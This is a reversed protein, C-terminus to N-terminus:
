RNSALKAAKNQGTIKRHKKDRSREITSCLQYWPIQLDLWYNWTNLHQWVSDILDVYEDLAKVDKLLRTCTKMLECTENLKYTPWGNNRSLLLAETIKKLSELEVAGERAVQRLDYLDEVLVRSESELYILPTARNNLAGVTQLLKSVELPPQLWM